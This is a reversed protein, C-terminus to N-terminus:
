KKVPNVHNEPNLFLLFTNEIISHVQPRNQGHATDGSAVYYGAMDLRRSFFLSWVVKEKDTHTRPLGHM